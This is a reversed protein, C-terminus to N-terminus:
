KKFLDGLNVKKTEETQIDESNVVTQRNTRLEDFAMTQSMAKHHGAIKWCTRAYAFHVLGSDVVAFFLFTLLWNLTSPACYAFDIYAIAISAALCFFLSYFLVCFDHVRMDLSLVRLFSSTFDFVQVCALSFLGVILDEASYSSPSPYYLATAQLSLQLLLLSACLQLTSILRRPLPGPLYLSMLSWIYCHEPVEFPVSLLQRDHKIIVVSTIVSSFLLLILLCLSPSDIECLPLSLQLSFTGSEFISLTGLTSSLKSYKCVSSLASICSYQGSPVPLNLNIRIPQTESKWSQNLVPTISFSSYNGCTTLNLSLIVNTETFFAYFNISIIESSLSTHTPFTINLKGFTLELGSFTSAFITNASIIINNSSTLYSDPLSGNSWYLMLCTMLRNFTHETINQTIPYLTSLINDVKAKTLVGTYAELVILMLDATGQLQEGNVAQQTVIAQMCMFFQLFTAENIFTKSFYSVFASYVQNIETANLSFESLMMIANTVKDPFELLKLYKNRTRPKLERARHLSSSYENCTGLSDCVICLADKVWSPYYLYSSDVGITSAFIFAHGSSNLGGFMYELPYDEFDGDFCNVCQILYSDNVIQVSIDECIPGQNVEVQLNIMERMKGSISVNLSLNFNEGQVLQDGFISIFPLATNISNSHLYGLSDSWIFKSTNILSYLPMLRLVTQQSVKGTSWLLEVTGNIQSNCIVVISQSANKTDTLAIVTFEYSVGNQLYQNQVIMQNSNTEISLLNGYLDFCNSYEQSCQFIYRVTANSNDPDTAWASLVFPESIGISGSTRSLSLQLDSPAITVTCSSFQIISEATVQLTIDYSGVSISGAPLILFSEHQSSNILSSLEPFSSSWVYSFKSFGCFNLIVPNLIIASSITFFIQSPLWLTFDLSKTISVSVSSQVSIHLNPISVQLYIKLTSIFLLSAPIFITDTSGSEELFSVLASDSALWKYNYFPSTDASKMMLVDGSCALSFITPATISSIVTPMFYVMEITVVLKEINFDCTTGQAQLNTCNLLIRNMAVDPYDKLKIQLLNETIWSCAVALLLIPDSPGLIDDCSGVLTINVARAFAVMVSLYDKAYYATVENSKFYNGCLICYGNSAQLSGKCTCENNTINYYSTELCQCIGDIIINATSTCVACQFMALAVLCMSDTNNSPLVSVPQSLSINGASFVLTSSQNFSLIVSVTGDVAQTTSILSGQASVNLQTSYPIPQNSSNLLLVSFSYQYKALINENPLEIAIARIPGWFVEPLYGITNNCCSSSAMIQYNAPTAVSISNFTAVGGITSNTLSLEVTGDSILLLSITYPGYKTENATKDYNCVM